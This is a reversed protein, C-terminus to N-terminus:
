TKNRKRRSRRCCSLLRYRTLIGRGHCWLRGYAHRKRQQDDQLINRFIGSQPFRFCCRLRDNRIFVSDDEYEGFHEAFDEGVTDEIDEVVEDEDDALVGDGAYYVLSIQTYNDNEGYDDPSIVYPENPMPDDKKGETNKKSHETYNTYGEEQLKAAYNVLDPKLKAIDAKHQNEEQKENSKENKAINTNVPKREAFAAKVSDIEEQTIQEYYRRLCLWTAAAGVTAGALFMAFGTKSM